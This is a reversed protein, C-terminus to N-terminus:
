RASCRLRRFGLFSRSRWCSTTAMERARDSVVAVIGFPLLARREGKINYFWVSRREWFM